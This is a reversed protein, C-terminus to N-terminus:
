NRRSYVQSKMQRCILVDHLAQQLYPEVEDMKNQQFLSDLDELIKTIDM